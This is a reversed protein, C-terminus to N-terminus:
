HLSALEGSGIDLGLTRAERLAALFQTKLQEDTMADYRNVNVDLERPLIAVMSRLFAAPEDRMVRALVDVGSTQWAEYMDQIFVEGLKNRSGKPRGNPNGSQGPQWPAALHKKRAAEGNAKKTKSNPRSQKAKAKKREAM